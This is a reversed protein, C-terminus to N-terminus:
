LTAGRGEPGAAQRYVPTFSTWKSPRQLCVSFTDRLYLHLVLSVSVHLFSTIANDLERGQELETDMLMKKNGNFFNWRVGAQVTLTDTTMVSTTPNAEPVTGTAGLIWTGPSQEAGHEPCDRWM